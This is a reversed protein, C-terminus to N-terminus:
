VPVDARAILSGAAVSSHVASSVGVSSAVSSMAPAVDLDAVAGYEFVQGSESM